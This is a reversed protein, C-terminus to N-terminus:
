LETLGVHIGPDQPHPGHDAKGPVGSLQILLLSVVRMLSAVTALSLKIGDVQVKGGTM